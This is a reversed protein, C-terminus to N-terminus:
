LSHCLGPGRPASAARPGWAAYPLPGARGWGAGEGREAGLVIFGLLSCIFGSGAPSWGLSLRRLAGPAAPPPDQEGASSLGAAEGRAREGFGRTSQPARPAGVEAPLYEQRLRVPLGLSLAGLCGTWCSLEHAPPQSHGLKAHSRATVPRAPESSDGQWCSLGRPGRQNWASRPPWGTGRDPWPPPPLARPPWLPWPTEQEAGESKTM